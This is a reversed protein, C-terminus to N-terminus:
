VQKSLREGQTLFDSQLTLVSSLSRHHALSLPPTPHTAQEGSGRTQSDVMM